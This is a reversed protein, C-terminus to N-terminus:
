VKSPSVGFQKKFSTSFYKPDSYGVQLAVESVNFERTKLLTMAKNLRIIRIYDNPSHGTLAKLKNYVVTRSMGLDRYLDNTSFDFDNIRNTIIHNVKEIFKRDIPSVNDIDDSEVKELSAEVVDQQLIRKQALVKMLRARLVNIEFPKTIYDSAGAELGYVIDSSDCLSTLFVVAIHSTDISSKLERCLQDGTIEPMLYDSVIIDPNQEKAKVLAKRSDDIKDIIFLDDLGEHLINVTQDDIGVLLMKSKNDKNAVDKSAKQEEDASVDDLIPHSSSGMGKEMRMLKKRIHYYKVSLVILLIFLAVNIIILYKM